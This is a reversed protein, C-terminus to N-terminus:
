LFWLLAKPEWDESPRDWSEYELFSISLFGDPDRLSSESSGESHNTTLIRIRIFDWLTVRSKFPQAVLQVTCSDLSKNNTLNSNSKLSMDCHCTRISFSWLSAWRDTNDFLVVALLKFRNFAAEFGRLLWCTVDIAKANKPKGQQSDVYSGWSWQQRGKCEEVWRTPNFVWARLWWKSAM